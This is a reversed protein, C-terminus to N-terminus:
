KGGLKVGGLCDNLFYKYKENAGGGWGFFDETYFSNLLCKSGGAGGV